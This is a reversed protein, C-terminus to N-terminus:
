LGAPISPSNILQFFGADRLNIRGRTWAKPEAQDSFHFQVSLHVPEGNKKVTRVLKGPPQYVTGVLSPELYESESDGGTELKITIGELNGNLPPIAWPLQKSPIVEISDIAIGDKNITQILGADRLNLRGRTWAVQEAQDSLHFQASLYVPDSNKKLARVLKRPPQYENGVLIPELYTSQIEGVEEIKVTIGDLTGGALTRKWPLSVSPDVEIWEIDDEDLPNFLATDGGLNYLREVSISQERLQITTVVRLDIDDKTVNQLAAPRGTIPFALLSVPKDKYMWGTVEKWKAIMAEGFANGNHFYDISVSISSIARETDVDPFLVFGREWSNSVITVLKERLAAPWDGIGIFDGFGGPVEILQRSKFSYTYKGSVSKKQMKVASAYGGGVTTMNEATYVPIFGLFKKVTRSRSTRVDEPAAASAPTVGTPPELKELMRANIENLFPGALKMADAETYNEGPHITVKVAGKERLYEMFKQRDSSYSGSGWGLISATARVKTESSYMDYTKDWDVEIDFGYEPTLGFYSYSVLIQLGTASQTLRDYVDVGEATLYLSFPMKQTAETPGTEGFVDTSRTKVLSILGAATADPGTEGPAYLQMKLTRFPLSAISIQAAPVALNARTKIAQQLQGIADDPLDYKVAFQLIGGELFQGPNEPDRFQFRLLNFEPAEQGDLTTRALRVANPMYYWANPREADRVVTVKYPLAGIELEFEDKDNLSPHGM